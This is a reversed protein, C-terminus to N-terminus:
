NSGRVEPTARACFGHPHTKFAQASFGCQETASARLASCLWMPRGPEVATPSGVVPTDTRLRVGRVAQGHFSSMYYVSLYFVIEM